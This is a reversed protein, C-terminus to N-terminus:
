NDEKFISKVAWMKAEEVKTYALSSERGPQLFLQLQAHLEIFLNTVAENAAQQAAGAAGGKATGGLAKTAVVRAEELDISNPM